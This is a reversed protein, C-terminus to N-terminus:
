KADAPAYLDARTLPVSTRGRTDPKALLMQVVGLRGAAFGHASGAMYFRWVNYTEDGVLARAQSEHAELRRVWHRLTLAYHERLNEVDRIEFGANAAAESMSSLRPLDGDPFVYSEIFRSGRPFFRATLGRARAKQTIISHNLFLGGFRVVRAIADFYTPLMGEGVHEVMGVSAAKDFPGLAGVERYDLLEVRCRAALGESAVRARAYEAQEASLTVGVATAGYERAAHRVLGGWGCGIDLLREGASLRLKRCAHEYKHRQADDLSDHETQFYGCSYTMDRDLWLAYFENSVDYHYSIAARDRAPSHLRGHLRARQRPRESVPAPPPNPLRAAAAALAIWDAATRAEAVADMAAFAYEADGLVAIDGRIIAEGAALDSTRTLLARLVGPHRLVIRSVATTGPVYLAIGNALSVAVAADVGTFLQGVVSRAAVTGVLRDPTEPPHPTRLQTTAM